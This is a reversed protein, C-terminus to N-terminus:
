CHKCYPSASEVVLNGARPVDLYVFMKETFEVARTEFSMLARRQDKLRTKKYIYMLTYCLGVYAIKQAENFVSQIDSLTQSQSLVPTERDAPRRGAKESLNLSPTEEPLQLLPPSLVPVSLAHPSPTVVLSSEPYPSLLDDRQGDQTEESALGDQRAETALGDLSLTRSPDPPLPSEERDM